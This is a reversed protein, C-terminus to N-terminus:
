LLVAAAETDGMACTPVHAPPNAEIGRNAGDMHQKGHDPRNQLWRSYQGEGGGGGLTQFTASHM